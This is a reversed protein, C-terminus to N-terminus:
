PPTGVAVSLTSPSSSYVSLATVSFLVHCPNSPSYIYIYIFLDDLKGFVFSCDVVSVEQIVYRYNSLRNKVDKGQFRYDPHVPVLRKAKDWPDGLEAIPTTELTLDPNNFSRAVKDYFDEEERLESNRGDIESRNNGDGRRFFADRVAPDCICMLIRLERNLRAADDAGNSLGFNEIYEELRKLEALIIDKEEMIASEELKSLLSEKKITNVNPEKDDGRTRARRKLEKRMGDVFSAPLADKRNNWIQRKTRSAVSAKLLPNKDTVVFIPKGADDKHGMVMCLLGVPPSNGGKYGRLYAEAALESPTYDEFIIRYTVTDHFPAAKSTDPPVDGDTRPQSSAAVALANTAGTGTGAAPLPLLAPLPPM